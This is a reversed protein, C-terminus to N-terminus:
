AQAVLDQVSPWAVAVPDRTTRTGARTQALEADLAAELDGCVLAMPPRSGRDFAKPSAAENARPAPQKLFADANAVQKLVPVGFAYKAILQQGEPGAVFLVFQAAAEPHKGGRAITHRAGDLWTGMAKSKLPLAVDYESGM